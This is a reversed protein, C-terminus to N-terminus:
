VASAEIVLRKAIVYGYMGVSARIQFVSYGGESLYRRLEDPGRGEQLPFGYRLARTLQRREAAIFADLSVTAVDYIVNRLGAHDFHHALLEEFRMQLRKGQQETTINLEGVEYDVTYGLVQVCHAAMVYEGLSEDFLLGGSM